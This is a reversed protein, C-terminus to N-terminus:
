KVRVVAVASVIVTTRRRMARRADARTKVAPMPEPVEAPALDAAPVDSELRPM